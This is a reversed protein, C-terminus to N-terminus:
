WPLEPLTGAKRDQMFRRQLAAGREQATWTRAIATGNPATTAALAVGVIAAICPLPGGHQIIQLIGAATVATGIATAALAAVAKSGYIFRFTVM